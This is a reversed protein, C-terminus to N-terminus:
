KCRAGGGDDDGDADGDVGDDGHGQIILIRRVMGIIQDTLTCSSVIDGDTEQERSGGM